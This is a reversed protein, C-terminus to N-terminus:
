KKREIPLTIDDFIEFYGLKNIKYKFTFCKKDDYNKHEYIGLLNSTVGTYHEM